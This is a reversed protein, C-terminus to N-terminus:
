AHNGDGAEPLGAIFLGAADAAAITDPAVGASFRKLRVAIGAFGAAAAAAVVEPSTDRGGALTAVGARWKVRGDGWQRHGAAREIAARPGEGTEVALVHGRVVAVARSGGIPEMAAIVAAGKRLDRVAGRPVAVRGITTIGAPSGRGLLISVLGGGSRRLRQREAADALMKAASARDVELGAVVLGSANARIALEDRRAALVHGAEVVIGALGAEVARTVTEPGIVPLDIREDQGPKVRKVLVGRTVGPPIGGSRRQAAVRQLLGDTGEAGELAELCGNSVVAAQGIDLAGLAGIAAFGLRADAIMAEDAAHRALPGAGILLEPAVRAPGVVKLGKGELFAIVGRLVKDDGGALVLRTVTALASFFGFDPKIAGLDPRRVGGIIVLDTVGAQRFKRVMRGIEGWGVRTVPYPGFSAEAESDLAVIHLPIGRAAVADAVERPLSGGGALIGIRRSVSM